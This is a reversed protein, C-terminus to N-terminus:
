LAHTTKFKAGLGQARKLFSLNADITFTAAVNVDPTQEETQTFLDQARYGLTRILFNRTGSFTVRNENLGVQYSLDKHVGNVSSNGIGVVKNGIRIGSGSDGSELGGDLGNPVYDTNKDGSVGSWWGAIPQHNINSFLLIGFWATYIKNTAARLTLQEPYDKMGFGYLEIKRDFYIALSEPEALFLEPYDVKVKLDKPDFLVFALDYSPLVLGEEIAKQEDHGWGFDKKELISRYDLYYESVITKKARIKDTQGEVRISISNGSKRGIKEPVCHAATLVTGPGVLTGTCYDSLDGIVMDLLVVEPHGSAPMGNTVALASNTFICFVALLFNM